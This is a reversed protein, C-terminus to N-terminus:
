SYMWQFVEYEAMFREGNYYIFDGCNRYRKMPKEPPAQKGKERAERIEKLYQCTSHTKRRGFIPKKCILCTDYWIKEM